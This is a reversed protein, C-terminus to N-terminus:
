MTVPNTLTAKDISKIACKINDQLNQAMHVLAFAGDGIERIFQYDEEVETLV